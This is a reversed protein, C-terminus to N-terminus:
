INLLNLGIEENFKRVLEIRIERLHIECTASIILKDVHGAKVNFDRDALVAHCHIIPKNDMQAVNGTLSAIELPGDIDIRFYQKNDLHYIALEAFSAAGIGSFWAAKIEKKECFEVIKSVLEDGKELRLVFSKM